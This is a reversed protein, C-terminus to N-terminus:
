SRGSTAPVAAAQEEAWATRVDAWWDWGAWGAGVLVLAAACEPATLCVDVAVWGSLSNGVLATHGVGLADLLALVETAYALPGAPTQPDGASFWPGESISITNICGNWAAILDDALPLGSVLTQGGGDPAM